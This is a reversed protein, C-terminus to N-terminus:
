QPTWAWACVRGFNGLGRSEGFNPANSRIYIRSYGRWIGEVGVTSQIECNWIKYFVHNITGTREQYITLFVKLSQLFKMDRRHCQAKMMQFRCIGVPWSTAQFSANSRTAVVEWPNDDGRGYSMWLSNDSFKNFRAKGSGDWLVHINEKEGRRGPFSTSMNYHFPRIQERLQRVQKHETDKKRTQVSSESCPAIGDKPISVLKRWEFVQQM